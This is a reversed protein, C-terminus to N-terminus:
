FYAPMSGLITKEIQAIRADKEKGIKKAIEAAQEADANLFLTIGLPAYTNGALVIPMDKVRAERAKEMFANMSIGPIQLMCAENEHKEMRITYNRIIGSDTLFRETYYTFGNPFGHKEDISEFSQSSDTFLEKLVLYKKYTFQDSRPRPENKTRRWTIGKLLEFFSDSVPINKSTVSFRSVNWKIYYNTFLRRQMEYFVKSVNWGFFEEPKEREVCYHLIFTNGDDLLEALQIHPENKIENKIESASLANNYFSGEVLYNVYGLMVPNINASYKIGYREELEKIRKEADNGLIKKISDISFRNQMLFELAEKEDQSVSKKMIELM